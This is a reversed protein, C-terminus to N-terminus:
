QMKWLWLFDMNMHIHSPFQSLIEVDSSANGSDGAEVFVQVTYVSGEELGGTVMEEVCESSYGSSYSFEKRWELVPDGDHSITVTYNVSQFSCLIPLQHSYM